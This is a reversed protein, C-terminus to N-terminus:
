EINRHEKQNNDLKDLKHEITDISSVTDIQLTLKLISDKLQVSMKQLSDIESRHQSKTNNEKETFNLYRGLLFSCVIFFLAILTKIIKRM